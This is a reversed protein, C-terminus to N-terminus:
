GCFEYPVAPWVSDWVAMVATDDAGLQFTVYRGGREIGWLSYATSPVGEGRDVATLDPYAQRLEALTSGVGLGEATTPPAGDTATATVYVGWVTGKQEVVTLNSGSGNWSSVAPNACGDEAEPERTYAATLDDLEGDIPGRIAIPGVEDGSITWTSPDSVSYPARGPTRSPSPSAVATPTPTGVVPAGSPTETARPGPEPTATPAPDATVTTPILGLAVGGGAAGLLLVAVVGIAIGARRARRRPRPTARELVNRKMSVLMRQLDDGQPPEVDM